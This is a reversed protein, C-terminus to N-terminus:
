FFIGASIVLGNFSKAQSIDAIIQEIYDKIGNPELNWYYKFSVQVHSAVTVGAGVGLGYEWRSKLNGLIDHDGIQGGVTYGVFPEALAYVKLIRFLDIGWQVQVPVEVYKLNAHVGSIESAKGSYVLQPQLSFGLLLPQNYAIGATFDNANKFTVDKLPVNSSTFGGVVGFRGKDGAYSSFPLLLMSALLLAAFKKM